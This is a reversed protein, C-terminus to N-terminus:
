WLWLVDVPPRQKTHSTHKHPPTSQYDRHKPFACLLLASCLVACCLVASCLLASCLVASCLLACCLLASCLLASFLLACCQVETGAIPGPAVSNVRVGAPGWERALHRGMADVFSSLV